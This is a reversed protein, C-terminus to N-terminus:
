NWSVERSHRDDTVRRFLIQLFANMRNICSYADYWDLSYTNMCMECITREKKRKEKKKCIHIQTQIQVYMQAYSPRYTHGCNKRQMCKNTHFCAQIRAHMSIHKTPTNTLILIYSHIMQYHKTRQRNTTATTSITKDTHM